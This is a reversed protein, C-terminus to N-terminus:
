SIEQGAMSPRRSSFATLGIASVLLEFAAVVTPHLAPQRLPCLPGRSSTEQWEQSNGWQPSAGGTAVTQATPIEGLVWTAVVLLLALWGMWRMSQSRFGNAKPREHQDPRLSPETPHLQRAMAPFAPAAVYSLHKSDLPKTTIAPRTGWGRPRDAANVEPLM